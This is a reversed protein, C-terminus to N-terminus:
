RQQGRALRGFGFRCRGTSLRPRAKDPASVTGASPKSGMSARRPAKGGPLTVPAGFSRDISHIASNSSVARPGYVPLARERGNNWAAMLVDGLGGIHDYHSHTLLIAECTAGTSGLRREIEAADAGPDVVVAKQADGAARVVYCNTGFQGLPLQDVALNM